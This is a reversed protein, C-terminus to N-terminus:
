AGFDEASDETLVAIGRPKVALSVPGYGAFEGDAHQPLARAPSIRIRKGTLVSVEKMKIHGGWFVTIFLFLIKMRSINHVCIVDLKGDSLNASPAIKMGGGYYPQNSVTVLWVKEFEYSKEDIQITVKSPKYLFLQQLLYCVYVFKGLALRNLIRKLRSRNVKMSIAADFGCGFNNVFTGRDFKKNQFLGIDFKPFHKRDLLGILQKAAQLPKKPIAFGRSFDNGSGAPIYGVSVHEYRNAGQVVEHITGDGGVAVVAVAQKNRKAIEEALLSAHGAFKTYLASFSINQQILLNEIKKWIKLGFGNGAVPNIIFYLKM